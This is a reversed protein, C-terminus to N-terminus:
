GDLRILDMPGLAGTDLKLGDFIIATIGELFWSLSFTCLQRNLRYGIGNCLCRKRRRNDMEGLLAVQIGKFSPCEAEPYPHM